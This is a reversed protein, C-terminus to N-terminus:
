KVLSDLWPEALDPDSLLLVTGDTSLGCDIITHIGFTDLWPMSLDPDSRVLVTGDM